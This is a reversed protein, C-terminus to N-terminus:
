RGKAMINKTTPYKHFLKQNYNLTPISLSKAVRNGMHSNDRFRNLKM